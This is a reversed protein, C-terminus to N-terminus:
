LLYIPGPLRSLQRDGNLPLGFAVASSIARPVVIRNRSATKKPPVRILEGEFKREAAKKLIPPPPPVKKMGIPPPLPVKPPDPAASPAASAMKAQRRIADIVGRLHHAREAFTAMREAAALANDIGSQMEPKLFPKISLLSGQYLRYCGAHDGQLNFLDAGTNIVDRLSKNLASPDHKTALSKEQGAGAAVFVLSWLVLALGAVRLAM